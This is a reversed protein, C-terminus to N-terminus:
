TVLTAIGDRNTLDCHLATSERKFVGITPKISWGAKRDIRDVQWQTVLLETRRLQPPSELISCRVIPTTTHQQGGSRLM